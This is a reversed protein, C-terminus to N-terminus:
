RGQAAIKFLFAVLFRASKDGKWFPHSMDQYIRDIKSQATAPNFLHPDKGYEALLQLVVPSNGAGTNDLWAELRPDSTGAKIASAMKENFQDGWEQRLHSVVRERNWSGDGNLMPSNKPTEENIFNVLHQSTDANLGGAHAVQAFSKVENTW